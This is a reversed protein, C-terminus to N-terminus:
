DTAKEVIADNCLHITHCAVIGATETRLRSAGLSIAEFSTDQALQIEPPSFDGEPGILIIVNRKPHYKTKLHINNGEECHAIFYQTDPKQELQNLFKNFPTLDNLIPLTSKLSQKMAAILVKNLRDIRINKRESRQCLIPTIETVGIETAKELFWEFRSINKTPAIAIHIKFDQINESSLKEILNVAVTRKDITWIEGKFMGGKGDIIHIIDGVKKRLTKACHRAEDESLRAINADINTTYFLIVKFNRGKYYNLLLYWFLM